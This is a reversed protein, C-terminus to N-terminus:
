NFAQLLNLKKDRNYSKYHMSWNVQIVFVLLLFIVIYKYYKKLNIKM